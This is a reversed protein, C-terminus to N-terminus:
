QEHPDEKGPGLRYPGLLHHELAGLRGDFRRDIGERLLIPLLQEVDEAALVLLIQEAAVLLRPSLIPRLEELAIPLHVLEDRIPFLAHHEDHLSAQGTGIGTTL